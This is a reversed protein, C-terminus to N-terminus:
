RGRRPERYAMAEGISGESSSCSQGTQSEVKGEGGKSGDSECEVM